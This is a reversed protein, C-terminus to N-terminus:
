RTSEAATRLVSGREDCLVLHPKGRRLARLKKQGRILDVQHDLLHVKQVLLRKADRLKQKTGTKCLGSGIHRPAIPTKTAPPTSETAEIMPKMVNNPTAVRFPMM